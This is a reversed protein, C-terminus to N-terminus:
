DTRGILQDAARLALRKDGRTLVVVVDVTVHPGWKPGGHSAALLLAPDNTEYTTPTSTWVEGRHYVRASTIALGGPLPAGSQNRVKFSAALPRGDPPAFPMFDRWLDAELTLRAGDIVVLQPISSPDNPDPATIRAADRACAALTLVLLPALLTRAKM